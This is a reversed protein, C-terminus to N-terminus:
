WDQKKPNLGISYFRVKRLGKASVDCGRAKYRNKTSQIGGGDWHRQKERNFELGEKKM